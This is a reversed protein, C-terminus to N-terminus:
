KPMGSRIWFGVATIISVALLGLVAIIGQKIVAEKIERQSRMFAFDKQVDALREPDVGLRTLLNDEAAEIARTVIPEIEQRIRVTLLRAIADAEDASM